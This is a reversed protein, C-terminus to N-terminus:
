ANSRDFRFPVPRPTTSIPLRRNRDLLGTINICKMSQFSMQKRDPTTLIDEACAPSSHEMPRTWVRPAFASMRTMGSEGDHVQDV